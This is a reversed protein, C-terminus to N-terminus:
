TVKSLLTTQYFTFESFIIIKLIEKFVGLM